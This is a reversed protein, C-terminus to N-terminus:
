RRQKDQAGTAVRYSNRGVIASLGICQVPRNTGPQDDNARMLEGVRAPELIAAHHKVKPTTLAGRLVQAPDREARLTAVAYRFMRALRLKSTPM